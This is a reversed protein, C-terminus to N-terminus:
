PAFTAKCLFWSTIRGTVNYIAWLIHVNFRTTHHPQAEGIKIKSTSHM